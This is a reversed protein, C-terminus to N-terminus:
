WATVTVANVLKPAIRVGKCLGHESRRLRISCTLGVEESLPRSEIERNDCPPQEMSKGLAVREWRELRVEFVDSKGPRRRARTYLGTIV